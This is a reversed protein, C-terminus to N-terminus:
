MLVVFLNRVATMVKTIVDSLDVYICRLKNCIEHEVNGANWYWIIEM